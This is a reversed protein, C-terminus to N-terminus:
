IPADDQYELLDEPKPLDQILESLNLSEGLTDAMQMASDTDAEYNKVLLKNFTAEDVKELVLPRNFHRRLENLVTIAPHHCYIIKLENTDTLRSLVHHRKAFSFPIPKPPTTM